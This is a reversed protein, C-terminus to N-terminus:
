IRALRLEKKFAISSKVVSGYPEDRTSKFEAVTEGFFFIQSSFRNCGFAMCNVFFVGCVFFGGVLYRNIFVSPLINPNDYFTSQLRIIM